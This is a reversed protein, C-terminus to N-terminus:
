KMRDFIHALKQMTEIMPGASLPYKQAWGDPQKAHKMASELDEMTYLFEQGITEPDHYAERLVKM